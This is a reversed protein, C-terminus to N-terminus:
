NLDLWNIDVTKSDLRVLWTVVDNKWLPSFTSNLFSLEPFNQCKSPIKFFLPFNAKKYMVICIFHFTIQTFDLSSLKKKWARYQGTLFLYPVHSSDTTEESILLELWSGDIFIYALINFLTCLLYKFCLLVNINVNTKIYKLLLRQNLFFFFFFLCFLADGMGGDHGYAVFKTSTVLRHRDKFLSLQTPENVVQIFSLVAFGSKSVKFCHIITEERVM